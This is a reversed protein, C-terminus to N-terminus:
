RLREELATIFSSEDEFVTPMAPDTGPPPELGWSAVTWVEVGAKLALAIESLTGPGGGIAVCLDASLVNIANRAMGAGTYIPIAVWRNPYGGRESEVPLVGLTLGGAEV